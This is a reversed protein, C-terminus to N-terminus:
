RQSRAERGRGAVFFSRGQCRDATYFHSKQFYVAPWVALQRIFIFFHKKYPLKLSFKRIFHSFKFGYPLESLFNGYSISFTSKTRCFFPFNGYSILFGLDM